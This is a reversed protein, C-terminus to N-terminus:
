GRTDVGEPAILINGYADVTGAFGPLVLTTSDYQTIVAPGAVRNGPRLKARRYVNTDQFGGGFYAPQQDARAHRADPGDLDGAKFSPPPVHGVAVCRLNVAEVPVNLRFHYLREHLTHFADSISSLGRSELDALDVRIPLEFGQRFYRVDICYQLEQQEPGVGERTLWATGEDGLNRLHGAVDAVGVEQLLHIFTRALENKYNSAVFGLASLVGPDPPVIVPFSGTLASLANAHLPGAGGFALLAFDRPDFGREVTVVRLAGFMNENVIDIIGQAAQHVNLGMLQGVRGVAAKAAEVDLLMGGGILERPLRGLVLNADTVTPEAGGRGYCAPGPEAGASRPGVRLARTVEPVNAISGGGAGITVIDVSPSKVPYHGVKTERTYTPEGNRCLSVDTSTGGMDFTLVNPFGALGAILTAGSVGGAPGSLMTHVPKDAATGITILGGDSRVIDISPTRGSEEELRRTINQLYTRMQPKVYSNMVTTITREYERFESLIDSSISIPLEPAMEMVLERIRQEHQPNAYSHLLSITLAEVKQNLLAQLRLRLRQEDLAELVHGKADIREDAEITMSVPSLPQRKEMIMFGFLPGPTWSRALHLIHRFGRTVVLGVRAGKGELVTNTAVTTGHLIHALAKPEIGVQECIAAAGHVIAQSQDRTTSPLKYPYMSGTEGDVLLLDTFTGGVDVGLRYPM